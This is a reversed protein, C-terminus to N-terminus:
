DKCFDVLLMEVSNKARGEIDAEQFIERAKQCYENEGSILWARKLYDIALLPNKELQESMFEYDSALTLFKELYKTIKKKFGRGFDIHETRVFDSPMNSNKTKIVLTEKGYAQMLGIEYFINAITKHSMENTIIAIGLPVGLIIHWIKLLFDKGTVVDNADILRIGYDTIIKTLYSRIRNVEKPIPLGLKTMIFSTRPRYEIRGTHPDGDTPRYFIM